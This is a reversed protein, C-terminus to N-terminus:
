ISLRIHSCSDPLVLLVWFTHTGAKRDCHCSQWTVPNWGLIPDSSLRHWPLWFLQSLVCISFIFMVTASMGRHLPDRHSLCFHTIFALSLFTTLVLYYPKLTVLTFVIKQDPHHVHVIIDGLLAICCVDSLLVAAIWVEGLVWSIGDLSVVSVLAFSVWAPTFSHRLSSSVESVWFKCDERSFKVFM